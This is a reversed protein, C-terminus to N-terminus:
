HRYGRWNHYPHGHPHGYHDYHRRYGGQRPGYYDLPVCVCATLSSLVLSLAILRLIKM